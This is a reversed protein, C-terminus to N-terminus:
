LLDIVSLKSSEAFEQFRKWKHSVQLNNPANLRLSWKRSPQSIPISDIRAQFPFEKRFTSESKQFDAGFNAFSNSSEEDTQDTNDQSDGSVFSSSQSTVTQINPSFQDLKQTLSELLEPKRVKFKTRLEKPRMSLNYVGDLTAPKAPDSEFQGLTLLNVMLHVLMLRSIEDGPCKRSGYSFLFYQDQPKNILEGSSTLFREPIFEDPNEWVNPDHNAAYQNVFVLLGKPIKFGNLTTESITSHPITTSTFTSHRFIEHM